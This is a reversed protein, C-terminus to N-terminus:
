SSPEKKKTHKPLTFKELIDSNDSGQAYLRMIRQWEKLTDPTQLLLENEMDARLSKDNTQLM